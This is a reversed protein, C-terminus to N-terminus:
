PCLHAGLFPTNRPCTAYLAGAGDSGVDIIADEDWENNARYMCESKTYGFYSWPFGWSGSVCYYAANEYM